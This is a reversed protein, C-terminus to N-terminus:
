PPFDQFLLPVARAIVEDAHDRDKPYLNTEVWGRWIPEGLYYVDAALFGITQINMRSGAALDIREWCDTEACPSEQIEVSVLERRTRLTLAVEIDSWQDEPASTDRPVFDFGRSRLHQIVAQQLAGRVLPGVYGTDDIIDIPATGRWTFSSENDIAGPEVVCQSGAQMPTQCGGLLLVCCLSLAAVKM